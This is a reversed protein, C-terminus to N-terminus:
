RDDEFLELNQLLEVRELLALQKVLERDEPSLPPPETKAPQPPQAQHQAKPPGVPHAQQAGAAQALLAATALLALM